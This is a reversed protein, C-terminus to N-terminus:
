LRQQVIGKRTRNSEREQSETIIKTNVYESKIGSGPAYKKTKRKTTQRTYIKLLIENLKFFFKATQMTIQM